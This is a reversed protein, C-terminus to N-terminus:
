QTQNVPTGLVKRGDRVFEQGVTIIAATEPLGAVWIGETTDQLIIVPRFRAIGDVDLRVGLRGNDDLTLASQPILHAASAPLAITLEATMGDRLRGDPNELTVEVAFTRTDTDAMRSLFSINGEVEVGNILRATAPQGIRLLDVEQEAVFGSVKVRSLDIVNACYTGPTLLAGLEATDTELIGDFPARIELQAIDWRVRDLRAQAAQLQAQRAKLTTQAAFGKSQLQTAAEAEVQAEALAAEAESLEAARVGPELRCLVQGKRVAAGRRLPASIVRGTTEAAVQVNRNAETRGRINLSATTSRATSHLVLVPVPPEVRGAADVAAQDGPTVPALVPVEHRLVFWYALAAAIALTALLSTLRM